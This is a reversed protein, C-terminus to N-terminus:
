HVAEGRPGTGGLYRAAPPRVGLPVLTEDDRSTALPTGRVSTFQIGDYGCSDSLEVCVTLGAVREGRLWDFASVKGVEIGM